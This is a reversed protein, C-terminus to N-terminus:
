ATQKEETSGLVLGLWPKKNTRIRKGLGFRSGVPLYSIFCMESNSMQGSTLNRQKSIWVHFLVFLCFSVHSLAKQPCFYAMHVVVDADSICYLSPM